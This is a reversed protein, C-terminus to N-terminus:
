QKDGPKDGAREARVIDGGARQVPLPAAAVTKGTQYRTDPKVPVETDTEASIAAAAQDRELAADLENPDITVTQALHPHGAEPHLHIVTLIRRYVPFSIGELLQEDTEVDYAGAPLERDFTGLVFPQRFTVTRKNTRTTM